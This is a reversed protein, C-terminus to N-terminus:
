AASAMWRAASLASCPMRQPRFAAQRPDSKGTPAAWTQADGPRPSPPPAAICSPAPIPESPDGVVVASGGPVGTPVVVPPANPAPTAGGMRAPQPAQGDSPWTWTLVEQDDGPGTDTTTSMLRAHDYVHVVTPQWSQAWASPVRVERTVQSGPTLSMGAAYSTTNASGTLLGRADTRASVQGDQNYALTIAVHGLADTISTIRQSNGDYSYHTVQGAQDTATSLRAKGDYGFAVTQPTGAGVSPDPFATVAVIRGLMPDYDLRFLTGGDPALVAALGNEGWEMNLMAKGPQQASTLNGQADFTWRTGDEQTAVYTGDAQHILSEPLAQRPSYTGDPNATYTDSRGTDTVVILDATGDGPANLRANFVHTWGQGLPTFRTDNSNYFREFAISTGGVMAHLDTWEYEYSGTYTNVGAASATEAFGPALSLM